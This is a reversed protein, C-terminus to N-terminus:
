KLLQESNYHLSTICATMMVAQLDSDAVANGMM